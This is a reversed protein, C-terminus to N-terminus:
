IKNGHKLLYADWERETMNSIKPLLKQYELYNEGVWRLHNNKNRITYRFDFNGTKLMDAYLQMATIEIINRQNNPMNEYRFLKFDDDFRLVKRDYPFIDECITLHYVSEDFDGMGVPGPVYPDANGKKLYDDITKNIREIPRSNGKVKTDFTIGSSNSPMIFFHAYKNEDESVNFIGDNNETSVEDDLKSCGLITLSSFALFIRFTRQPVNKM